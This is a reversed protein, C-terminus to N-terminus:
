PAPRYRSVLATVCSGAALVAITILLQRQPLAVALLCCLGLGLWATWRPWRRAGPPLRLAAANTVAYYVLV